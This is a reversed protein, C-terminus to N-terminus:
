SNLNRTIAEITKCPYPTALDLDITCGICFVYDVVEHKHLLLRYPKHLEVVALLASYPVDKNRSERFNDSKIDMILEDHTM